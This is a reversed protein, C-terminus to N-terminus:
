SRAAKRPPRYTNVRQLWNDLLRAERREAPANAIRTVLTDDAARMFEALAGPGPQVSDMNQLVQLLGWGKNNYREAPNAGDGQFQVYDLLPYLGGPTKIMTNYARLAQQREKLPLQNIRQPIAQTLQLAMFNAQLNLTKRLFNDLEQMQQDTRANKFATSDPWPGGHQARQALWAPLPINHAKVYDLYAPFTERFRGTKGSPYWIFQGLGLTAFNETTNWRVLPAATDNAQNRLIRQAIWNLDQVKHQRNNPIQAARLRNATIAQAPLRTAATPRLPPQKNVTPSLVPVQQVSPQVLRKNYAIPMAQPTRSLPAPLIATARNTHNQTTAAIPVPIVPLQPLQPVFVAFRAPYLTTTNNAVPVPSVCATLLGTIATLLILTKM